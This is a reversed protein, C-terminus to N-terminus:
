GRLFALPPGRRGRGRRAGTNGLPVKGDTAGRPSGCRGIPSWKGIRLGEGKRPSPPESAHREPPFITSPAPPSSGAAGRKASRGAGPGCGRGGQGGRGRRGARRWQRRGRGAGGALGRGGPELEGGEGAQDSSILRAVAFGIGARGAFGMGSIAGARGGAGSRRGRCGARGPGRPRGARPPNAPTLTLTSIMRITTGIESMTYNVTYNVSAKSVM